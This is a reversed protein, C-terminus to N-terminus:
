RTRARSSSTFLHRATSCNWHRTGGHDVTYKITSGQVIRSVSQACCSLRAARACSLLFLPWCTPIKLTLHVTRSRHVAGPPTSDSYPRFSHLLSSSSYSSLPRHSPTFPPSCFSLRSPSGGRHTSRAHLVQLRRLDNSYVCLSFHFQICSITVTLANSTFNTAALQHPSTSCDIASCKMASIRSFTNSSSYFCLSRCYQSLLEFFYRRPSAWFDLCTQTLHLLSVPRRIPLPRAHPALVRVEVITSPDFGLM